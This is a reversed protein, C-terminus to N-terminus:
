NCGGFKPNYIITGDPLKLSDASEIEFSIGSGGGCGGPTIIVTNNNGWSFAGSTNGSGINGTAGEQPTSGSNFWSVAMEFIFPLWPTINGGKMEMQEKPSIVYFDQMENLKLKKLKTMTNKNIIQFLHIQVSLNNM